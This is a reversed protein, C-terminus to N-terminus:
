GTEEGKLYSLYLGMRDSASSSCLTFFRFPPALVGGGADLEQTSVAKLLHGRTTVDSKNVISVIDVDIGVKLINFM